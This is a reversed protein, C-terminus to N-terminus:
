VITSKNTTNRGNSTTANTTSKGQNMGQRREPAFHSVNHITLPYHDTNINSNFDNTCDLIGNKWRSPALWYDKVAYHGRTKPHEPKTGPRRWTIKQNERKHYWTNVITYNHETCFDILEDRNSMMGEDTLTNEHSKDFTHAGVFVCQCIFPHHAVPIFKNVKARLM